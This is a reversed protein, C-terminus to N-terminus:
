SAREGLKGTITVARRGNHKGLRGVFRPIGAVTLVVETDSPLGTALLDGEALDALQEDSLDIDPLAAVLDLPRRSAPARPPRQEGDQQEAHRCVVGAVGALGGPDLPMHLRLAGPQGGVDVGFAAVWAEATAEDRSRPAASEAPAALPPLDGGAPWADRLAAATARAARTLVKREIETLPRDPVDLDAADGGALREFLAFCLEPSLEAAVPQPPFEPDRTLAAVIFRPWAGAEAAAGAAAPAVTVQTRALATLGAALGEAFRALLARGGTADLQQAANM